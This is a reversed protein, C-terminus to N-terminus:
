AASKFGGNGRRRRRQHQGGGPKGGPKGGFKSKSKGEHAAPEWRRGSAVPVTMKMVKEISKLLDMEDPACFAVAAGDAGARATRGIRHVYNDAVNPLDYNYVQRKCADSAASSVGQTSRPPRRIM